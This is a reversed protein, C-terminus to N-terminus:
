IDPWDDPTIFYRKLVQPLPTGRNTQVIMYPRNEQGILIKIQKSLEGASLPDSLNDLYPPTPWHRKHLLYWPHGSQSYSEELLEPLQFLKLWRAHYDGRYAYDPVPLDERPQFLYGKFVFQPEVTSVGLERLRAKTLPHESLTLQHELTRAVKIDLRDRAQPGVWLHQGDTYPLANVERRGLYFKIALELHLHKDTRRDYIVFDLEGLTRHADRIQLNRAVVEFRPDQVFFFEWLAEFYSGLFRTNRQALHNDLARPDTHQLRQQSERTLAPDFATPWGVLPSILSPSSIAWLFDRLSSHEVSAEQM